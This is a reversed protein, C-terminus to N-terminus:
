RVIMLEKSLLLSEVRMILHYAGSALGHTDFAASYLGPKRSGHYLTQVERGLADYVILSLPAESVTSFTITSVGTAPNPYISQIATTFPHVLVTGLECGAPLLALTTSGTGAVADCSEITSVNHLNVQPTLTSGVLTTYYLIALTDSNLPFPFHVITVSTTNAGRTVVINGSSTVSDCYLATPENDVTFSMGDSISTSADAVVFVKRETGIPLVQSDSRVTLTSPFHKRVTVSLAADRVVGCEDAVHINDTYTGTDAGGFSVTFTDSTMPAITANNRSMTFISSALTISRPVADHNVVPVEFAVPTFPCVSDTFSLPVAIDPTAVRVTMTFSHVGGCEDRFSINSSQVGVTPAGHFTVSATTSDGALVSVANADTTFLANDTGCQISRTLHSTNRIVVSRVASDGPCLTTDPVKSVTFAPSDVEAVLYVIIEHGCTDAVVLSDRFIGSTSSGSYRIPISRQQTVNLFATSQVTFSSTNQVRLSCTSAITSLNLLTFASDKTMGCYLYGFDITDNATSIVAFRISDKNGTFTIPWPNHGVTIDNNYLTLTAVSTGALTSLYRVVLPLSDGSVITDPWATPFLLAYSANGNVFTSSDIILPGRGANHVYVTEQAQSTCVLSPFIMTQASAIVAPPPGLKVIWFDNQGHNGSVDGDNSDSWGAIVYGGDKTQQMSNAVDNGKGGLSEEWEVGGVSDLKMIWYDSSDVVGHHLTVDDDNSNSFGAVVYGGDNTQQISTAEDYRSGGYSKEWQLVRVSDIKVIWYDGGGHNGTVDGDDPGAMGAIIYGGDKTQWIDNAEENNIGGYSHAWLEKGTRDLKIIWFDFQGHNDSVDGDTSRSWGSVIYCTDSTERICSVIDYNGGGFSKQWKLMGNSDLKVIWYDRSDLYPAGAPHHNGTVNGDNSDSYGGIIYGGDLTQRVSEAIDDWSGGLCKEWVINGSKDLKVIWWDELLTTGLHLGSVDGNVSQSAGVVVFGQDNTEQICVAEDNNSGGLSKQWLITGFADLKVVWCDFSDSNGHHGTVDGDISASAGAVVFGGDITQQISYARDNGSGGLSKQWQIPPAQAQVSSDTLLTIGFFIVFCWLDRSTM